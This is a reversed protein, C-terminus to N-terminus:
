CLTRSKVLHTVGVRQVIEMIRLIVILLILLIIIVILLLIAKYNDTHTDDDFNRRIKLNTFWYIV